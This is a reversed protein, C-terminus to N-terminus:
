RLRESLAAARIDPRSQRVEAPSGMVLDAVAVALPRTCFPGITHTQQHGSRSTLVIYFPPEDTTM